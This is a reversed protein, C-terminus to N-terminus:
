RTGDPLPLTSSVRTFCDQEFTLQGVMSGHLILSTARCTDRKVGLHGILPVFAQLLGVEEPETRTSRLM